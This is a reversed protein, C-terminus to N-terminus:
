GSSPGFVPTLAVPLAHPARRMADTEPSACQPRIEDDLQLDHPLDIQGLGPDVTSRADYRRSWRSLIRFWIFSIALRAHTRQIRMCRGRTKPLLFCLSDRTESRLFDFRPHGSSYEPSAPCKPRVALACVAVDTLSPCNRVDYEMLVNAKHFAQCQVAGRVPRSGTHVTVTTSLTQVAVNHIREPQPDNRTVAFVRGVLSVEQFFLGM